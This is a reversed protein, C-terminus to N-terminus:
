FVFDVDMVCVSPSLLCLGAGNTHMVNFYKLTSPISLEMQM